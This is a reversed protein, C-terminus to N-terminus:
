TWRGPSHMVGAVPKTIPVTSLLFHLVLEPHHKLLLPSHPFTGQCSNKEKRFTPSLPLRKPLRCGQGWGHPNLIGPLPWAAGGAGGLLKQEALQEGSIFPPHHEPYQCAEDKFAM